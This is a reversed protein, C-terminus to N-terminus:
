RSPRCAEAAEIVHMALVTTTMTGIGGPVPTIAHCKGNVKEFPVDGNMQGGEDVHIGVDLIIQDEHTATEDIIGACGAAVVLIDAERCLQPLNKTRSHCMTVTANEAQLMMAVPRGIVLSRGIVVARKGAPDAGYYHLMEICARATCPAFGTGVGAYVAAMSGPTMGDVDKEPRLLSAAVAECARDPLPRFLMCGHVSDDENIKKIEREMGAADIDTPLLIQKVAIGIKECRTLAAREYALDDPREGARVLALTPIIGEGRLKEARAALQETLAKAAPAGKWIQTTM